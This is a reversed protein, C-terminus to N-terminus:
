QNAGNLTRNLIRSDHPGPKMNLSVSEGYAVYEGDANLHVFGASTVEGLRSLNATVDAHAFYEGFIVPMSQDLMIYKISRM